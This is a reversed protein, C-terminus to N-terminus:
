CVECLKYKFTASLIFSSVTVAATNDETRGNHHAGPLVARTEMKDHANIAGMPEIHYFEQLRYNSLM